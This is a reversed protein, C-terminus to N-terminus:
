NRGGPEQLTQTGTRVEKLSSCCHPLMIWIFGTKDLNSQGHHKMVAISLRVLGYSVENRWGCSTVSWHYDILHNTCFGFFLLHTSGTKCEVESLLM